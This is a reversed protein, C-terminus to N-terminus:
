LDKWYKKHMSLRRKWSLSLSREHRGLKYATFKLFTRLIAQPVLWPEHRTLHAVEKTVFQRGTGGVSGFDKLVPLNRAHMVGTDFYRRFEQGLTYGHSHRVMARAVYEHTGGAKLLSAVALADEGLITQPFGGVSLLSTVRYAAFSNSCFCAKFGGKRADAMTRRYSVDPYNFDRAFAEIAGAGTRPLQRGFTSFVTLDDFPGILAALSGPDALIADQTMFVAIECDEAVRKAALNRTGGHNFDKREIVIVDAGGQRAIGATEDDSSSDVVLFRDPQRTQTHLAELFAPLEKAANLTPVILAFRRRELRDVKSDRLM